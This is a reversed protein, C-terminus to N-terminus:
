RTRPSILVPEEEFAAPVLIAAEFRIVVEIAAGRLGFPRSQIPLFDQSSGSKREGENGSPAYPGWDSSWYSPLLKEQVGMKCYRPTTVVLAYDRM